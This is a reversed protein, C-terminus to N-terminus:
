FKIHTGLEFGKKQFDTMYKLELGINNWYTGGGIGFVGLTNVSTSIFPTLVKKREITIQKHIPTFSYGLSQMQNYQVVADVTMTGLTDNDFLTEKYSNKKIFEAIIQATDVKQVIIEPQGPIRITNTKTPLIPKSPVEVLYPVPKPITDHVTGSKIYEVKEIPKMTWRGALFGLAILIIGILVWKRNIKDM